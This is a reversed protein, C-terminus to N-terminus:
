ELSQLRSDILQFIKKGDNEYIITLFNFGKAITSERKVINRDLDKEYTWKSKVEVILNDKPIFVDPHYVKNKNDFKYRISPVSTTTEIDYVDYDYVDILYKIAQPEFGQLRSFKRENIICSKFKYSGISHKNFIEPCQLPNEYGYNEMCTRNKREQTQPLNQSEKKSRIKIGNRKLKNCLGAKSINYKVAINILCEGNTYMDIAEQLEVPNTLKQPIPKVKGDETQLTEMQSRIKIGRRKLCNQIATYSCGIIDKITSIKLEDEVYMRIIREENDEVKPNFSTMLKGGNKKIITQLPSRNCKYIRALEMMPVKKILHLYLIEEEKGGVIKHKSRWIVDSTYEM